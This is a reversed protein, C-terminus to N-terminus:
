FLESSDVVLKPKFALGNLEVEIARVQAPKFKPDPSYGFEAKAEELESSLIAYLQKEEYILEETQCYGGTHHGERIERINKRLHAKITEREKGSEASRQIRGPRSETKTENKEESM